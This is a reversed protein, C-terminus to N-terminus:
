SGWGKKLAVKIIVNVVTEVLGQKILHDKVIKEGHLAVGSSISRYDIQFPYEIIQCM